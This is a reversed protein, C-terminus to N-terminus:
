VWYWTDEEEIRNEIRDLMRDEELRIVASPLWARTGSEREIWYGNGLGEEWMAKVIQGSPLMCELM